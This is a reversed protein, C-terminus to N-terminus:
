EPGLRTAGVGDQPRCSKVGDQPRRAKDCREGAGGGPPPELENSPEWWGGESLSAGSHKFSGAQRGATSMPVTFCGWGHAAAPRLGANDHM